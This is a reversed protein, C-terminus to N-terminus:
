PPPLRGRLSKAFRRFDEAALDTRAGLTALSNELLAHAQEIDGALLAAVPRRYDLKNSPDFCDQLRPRVDALGLASRMFPVGHMAIANAMDSAVEESGGPVFMWAMYKNEPMLYGLPSSVTPPLYAHFKEGRCEAVLREIDQFRVGIIPNIEVEGPGHHRTARNLGLWGLVNPALDLTFVYGARKKLGIKALAAVIADRYRDMPRNTVPAGMPQSPGQGAYAWLPRGPELRLSRRTTSGSRARLARHCLRPPSRPPLAVAHVWEVVQVLAKVPHLRSAQDGVVAYKGARRARDRGRRALAGATGHRVRGRRRAQRLDRVSLSLRREDAVRRTPRHRAWVVSAADSAQSARDVGTPEPLQPRVLAEDEHRNQGDTRAQRRGDGV